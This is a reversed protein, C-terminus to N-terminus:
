AFNINERIGEEGARDLLRLLAVRERVRARRRILIILGAHSIKQAAALFDDRNCTILIYDNEAAFRLVEEDQTQPHLLERLRFVEHGLATVGYAMDDPVDHDFLFRV